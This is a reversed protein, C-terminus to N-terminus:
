TTKGCIPASYGGFIEDGCALKMHFWVFHTKFNIRFKNLELM